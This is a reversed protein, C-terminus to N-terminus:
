RDIIVPSPRRSVARAALRILMPDSADDSIAVCLAEHEELEGALAVHTALWEQGGLVAELQARTVTVFIFEDICRGVRHDKRARVLRPDTGQPGRMEYLLFFRERAPIKKAIQEVIFWEATRGVRRITQRDVRAM